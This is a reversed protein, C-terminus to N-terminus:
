IKELQEQCFELAAKLEFQVMRKSIGYRDALEQHPTNKLRVAILIARQRWPLDNIVQQLTEVQRRGEVEREQGPAEDAVDLAERIEFNRARRLDQRRKDIAINLATRFLYALPNQIDGSRQGRDLRLYTEHLTERALDDSGLRRLLRIRLDDYRDVLLQRLSSWSTESM